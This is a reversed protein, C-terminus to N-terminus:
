LEYNMKKMYSTIKRGDIEPLTKKEEVAVAAAYGLAEGMASANGTVRYSAHAYFDGSICRGAMGLNELESSVLSGFPINYPRSKINGDYVAREYGKDLAHIDVPFKVLCVADEHRKGEVLDDSTVKYLGKIRRGERLGLQESTAVIRLNRWGPITKLACVTQHIEKRANITAMTIDLPSDFRVGYQHIIAMCWLDRCGLKFLLPTQYSPEIDISKLLERFKYKCEKEGFIFDYNDPIGTVLAHLSAPQLQGSDPHGAEYSCGACAALDGNGTCDLFVKASFAQCGGRGATVIATVRESSRIAEIVETHFLMNVGAETCLRELLAKMMEPDYVYRTEDVLEAANIHALESYIESVLGGKGNIDLAICLLRATWDGGLCGSHEMLLTKRGNRAATIAACVGSPGAGCIIVDYVQKIELKKGYTVYKM